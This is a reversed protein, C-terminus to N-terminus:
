TGALAAQARSVVEDVSAAVDIAVGSEDPQLPELTALQSPLLSAPMFHGHRGAIHKEITDESGTLHVFYAGAGRERIADRYSRKLASCAVVLGSGDAGARALEDGVAALWPWRDEDDLPTGAKMKAVNAAPHLDDADVFPVGLRKALAIGVTTKGVGSVGMVVCLVPDTPM